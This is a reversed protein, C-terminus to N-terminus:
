SGEVTQTTTVTRTQGPNPDTGAFGSQSLYPQTALTPRGVQASSTKQCVWRGALKVATYGDPCEFPPKTTTETGRDPTTQTTTTTTPQAPTTPGTPRTDDVEVVAAVDEDDPEYIVTSGVNTNTTATTTTPINATTTGPIQGVIEVATGEIVDDTARVDTSVNTNPTTEVVIGTDTTVQNSVQNNVNDQVEVTVGTDTAVNNAVTDVATNGVEVVAGTNTDVATNDVATNDVPIGAIGPATDIPTTVEDFVRIADNLNQGPQVTAQAGTDNNTLTTSGDANPTVQINSGGGVGTAQDILASDTPTGVIPADGAILNIDQMSLGTAQSLNQATNLSLGGTEAIENNIIDVAALADMSTATQGTGSAVDGVGRVGAEAMTDAAQQYASAIGTPATATQGVTPGSPTYGPTVDTFTGEVTVGPSTAGPTFGPTSFGPRIGSTDMGGYPTAFTDATGPPAATVQGTTQGPVAAIGGGLLAGVIGTNLDGTLNGTSLNQGAAATAAASAISPEAIGETIGEELMQTGIRGPLGGIGGFLGSVTGTAAAGPAANMAAQDAIAQAQETSLGRMIADQYATDAADGSVEGVTMGAGGLAYGAPGLVLGPALAMLTGPLADLVQTGLALPNISTNGFIDTTVIDGTRALNAEPFNQAYSELAADRINSGFGQISEAMANFANPTANPNEAVVAGVNPRSTGTVAAALGPDVQGTGFGVDVTGTDPNVINGLVDVLNGFTKIGLGTGAALGTETLSAPASVGTMDSITNGFESYGGMNAFADIAESRAKDAAIQAVAAEAEDAAQARQQGLQATLEATTPAAYTVSDATAPTVTQPGIPTDVVTGITPRTNIGFTPTIGATTTSATPASSLSGLGFDEEFSLMPDTAAAAISAAREAAIRDREAKEAAAIRDRAAREAAAREVAARERASEAAAAAAAAGTNSPGQRDRDVTATGGRTGGVNSPGQRDRDVTATGGKNGGVNGPGGTGGGGGPTAGGKNGGSTGGKKGAQGSDAGGGGGKNNGSTGGGKNGGSTGGKNGGSTGGKNGAQGSDAGGGGGKNGGSSGGGKNGGSSGGGKNGAQGSDAGGGGGGKSGGSSGGGKNGGGGGTKGDKTGGGGAGAPPFSPIGAPGPIDAGGMAKLMRREDPNIYALMHPQGAITAKKPAVVSGGAKYRSNGGRGTGDGERPVSAWFDLHRILGIM